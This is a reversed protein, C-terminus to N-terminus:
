PPSLSQDLARLQDVPTDTAESILLNICEGTFPILYKDEDFNYRGERMAKEAAGIMM